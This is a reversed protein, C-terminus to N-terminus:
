RFDVKGINGAVEEYGRMLGAESKRTKVELTEKSPLQRLCTKTAASDLRQKKASGCSRPRLPEM